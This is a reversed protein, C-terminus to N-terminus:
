YTSGNRRSVGEKRLLTKRIKLSGLLSFSRKIICSILGFSIILSIKTRMGYVAAEQILNLGAEGGGGGGKPGGNHGFSRYVFCLLVFVIKFGGSM